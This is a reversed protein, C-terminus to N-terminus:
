AAQFKDDVLTMGMSEAFKTPDASLNDKLEGFNKTKQDIAIARYAAKPNLGNILSKVYDKVSQDSAKEEVVFSFHNPRGSQDVSWVEEMVKKGDEGLIPKKTEKDVKPADFLKIKVKELTVTQGKFESPKMEKGYLSMGLKEASAVWVKMYVTNANPTKGEDAYPVYFSFNGDKLEFPDEGPFMELVVADGLTVKVQKKTTSWSEPPDVLDVDLLTGRVKKIGQFGGRSAEKSSEIFSM